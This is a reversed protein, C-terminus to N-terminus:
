WNKRTKRLLNRLEAATSFPTEFVQSLAEKPPEQHQGSETRRTALWDLPKRYLPFYKASELGASKIAEYAERIDNFKDPAHEPTYERILQQYRRKAEKESADPGLGLVEYPSYRVTTM